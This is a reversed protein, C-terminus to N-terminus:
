KVLNPRLVLHFADHLYNAAPSSGPCPMQTTKDFCVDGAKALFDDFLTYYTNPAPNPVSLLPTLTFTPEKGTPDSRIKDFQEFLDTIIPENQTVFTFVQSVFLQVLMGM